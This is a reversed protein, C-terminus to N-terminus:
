ATDTMAKWTAHWLENSKIYKFLVFLNQKAHQTYNWQSNKAIVYGFGKSYLLSKQQVGTNRVLFGTVYVDDIWYYPTYLSMNYLPAIVDNSLIYAFGECHDPYYEYPYEDYTVFWKDGKDRRPRYHRYISCYIVNQLMNPVRKYRTYFEDLKFMNVIVDTDVKVTLKAEPCYRMNWKLGMVNKYTLNRYNEVFDEQIIDHHKASETEIEHQHQFDAYRALMFVYTFTVNGSSHITAWTERIRQRGISDKAESHVYILIDPASTKDKRCRSEENTIYAFNHANVVHDVAYGGAGPLPYTAFTTNRIATQDGSVTGNQVSNSHTREDWTDNQHTLRVSDDYVHREDQSEAHRLTDNFNTKTDSFSKNNIQFDLLRM